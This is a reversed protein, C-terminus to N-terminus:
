FIRQIFKSFLVDIHNYNPTSIVIADPDARAIMERYDSYINATAIGRERAVTRQGEDPDAVAVLEAGDIAEINQLHELGMMGFGIIAYRVSM